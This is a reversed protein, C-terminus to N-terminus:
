ADGGHLEVLKKVRSLGLCTGEYKKEKPGIQSFPKFLKPLDEEKM